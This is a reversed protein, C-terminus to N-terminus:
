VQEYGLYAVAEQESPTTLNRYLVILPRISLVETKIAPKEFYSM